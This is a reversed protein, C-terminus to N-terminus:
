VGSRVLVTSVVLVNEIAKALGAPFPSAQGLESARFGPNAPAERLFQHRCANQSNHSMSQRGIISPHSGHPFPGLRGHEDVILAGADGFPTERRAGSGAPVPMLVVVDHDRQDVPPEFQDGLTAGLVERVELGALGVEAVDSDLMVHDVVAVAFIGEDLHLDFLACWFSRRKEAAADYRPRSSLILRIINAGAHGFSPPARLQDVCCKIKFTM